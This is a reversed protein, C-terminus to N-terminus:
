ATVTGYLKVYHSGAFRRRQDCLIAENCSLDVSVPLSINMLGETKIYNPWLFLIHTLYTSSLYIVVENRYSSTGTKERSLTLYMLILAHSIDHVTRDVNTGGPGLCTMLFEQWSRLLPCQRYFGSCDLVRMSRTVMIVGVLRISKELYFEVLEFWPM